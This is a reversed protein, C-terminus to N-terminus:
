ESDPVPIDQGVFVSGNWYAELRRTRARFGKVDLHLEAPAELRGFDHHLVM